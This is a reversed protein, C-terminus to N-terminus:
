VEDSRRKRTVVIERGAVVVAVLVVFLLLLPVVSSGDHSSAFGGHRGPGYLPRPDIEVEPNHHQLWREYDTEPRMKPAM